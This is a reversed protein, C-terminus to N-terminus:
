PNTRSVLDKILRATIGWIPGETKDYVYVNNQADGWPKSYHEPLGLEKAPFTVVEEGKENIYSPHVTINVKYAAPDTNEFYSVPITFVKEVEATNIPLDSVQPLDLVALFADITVGMLSVVTDLQGIIKIKEADIGLEEETERIATALFSLDKDPDFKGGPFCIEGGQRISAARKQFVFHYEGGIWILLVLVASNFYEEKGSIGPVPPLKRQLIELQLKDM